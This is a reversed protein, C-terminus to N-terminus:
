RKVLIPINEEWSSIHLVTKQKFLVIPTYNPDRCELTERPAGGWGGPSHFPLVKRGKRGKQTGDSAPFPVHWSRCVAPQPEVHGWHQRSVVASSVPGM